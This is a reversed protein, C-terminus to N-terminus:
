NSEGLAVSKDLYYTISQTEDDVLTLILNGDVFEFKYSTDVAKVLNNKISSQDIVVSIIDDEITYTGRICYSIDDYTLYFEGDNTFAIIDYASYWTNFLESYDNSITNGKVVFEENLSNETTTEVEEQNSSDSCGCFSMLTLLIGLIINIKKM